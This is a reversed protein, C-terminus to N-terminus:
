KEMDQKINEAPVGFARAAEEVVRDDFKNVTQKAWARLGEILLRALFTETILRTVLGVAIKALLNAM